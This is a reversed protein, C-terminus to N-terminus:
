KTEEYRTHSDPQAASAASPQRPRNNDRVHWDVSMDAVTIETDDLLEVVITFEVQGSATLRQELDHQPERLTALARIPGTALKRYSIRAARALPTLEAIRGALAGLMAAGSAAEGASFLAGAHQTGVHNTLQDREPLLVLARGPGIELIELGLLSNFPVARAMGAKLAAYDVDATM